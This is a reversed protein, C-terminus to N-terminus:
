RWYTLLSLFVFNVDASLLFRIQRKLTKVVYFMRVVRVWWNRVNVRTVCVHLMCVGAYVLTCTQEGPETEVSVLVPM